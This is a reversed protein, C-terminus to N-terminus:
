GRRHCWGVVLPTLCPSLSVRLCIDLSLTCVMRESIKKIRTAEKVKRAADASVRSSLKKVTHRNFVDEDHTSPMKLDEKLTTSQQATNLIALTPTTAETDYTDASDLTLDDLLFKAASLNNNSNPDTEEHEKRIRRSRIRVNTTMSPPETGVSDGDHNFDYNGGGNDAGSLKTPAAEGGSIIELMKSLVQESKSLSDMTDAWLDNDDGIVSSSTLEFVGVDVLTLYPQVRQSLGHGGQKLAILVSNLRDSRAKIIQRCIDSLPTSFFSLLSRIFMGQEKFRRKKLRLQPEVIIKM